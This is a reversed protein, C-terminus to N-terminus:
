IYVCVDVLFVLAVEEALGAGDCVKDNDGGMMSIGQGFCGCCAQLGCVGGRLRMPGALVGQQGPARQEPDLRQPELQRGASSLQLGASRSCSLVFCIAAVLVRCPFSRFMM